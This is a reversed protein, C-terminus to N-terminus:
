NHLVAFLRELDKAKAKWSYHQEIITRGIKGMQELSNRREYMYEIAAAIHEPKYSPILIGCAGRELIQRSFPIDTSIVPKGMALYELLKLPCSSKPYSFTALAAIGLDCMSLFMPVQRHSVPKHLYVNGSLSREEILNRLENEFAKSGAGLVFFVVDPHKPKILAIAEITQPLGRLPGLSGHYMVIFKESLDLQKRLERSFAINKNIEFLDLSVGNTIVEVRTPNIGYACLEEKLAPSAVTIGDSVRTALKIATYYLIREVLGSFGTKGISARVDLVLKTKRFLKIVILGLYESFNGIIVYPSEKKIAKPLYFLLM